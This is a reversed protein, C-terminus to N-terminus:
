LQEIQGATPLGSADSVVVSVYKAWGPVSFEGGGVHVAGLVTENDTYTPALYTESMTMSSPPGTKKPTAGSSPTAAVAALLSTAVAAATTATRM